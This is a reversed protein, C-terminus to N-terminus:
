YEYGGPPSSPAMSPAGPAGSGPAGSGLPGGAAGAVFWVGGVGQGNTDGAKADGKFYYLPLGNYTVQTAGDSRSLTALTGTVGSGAQAQQGAAVTFPPWNDACAATCNSTNASDKTFVYLTKGDPDTLFTGLASTATRVALGGGAPGSTGATATAGGGTTCAAIALGAVTLLAALYRHRRTTHRKM